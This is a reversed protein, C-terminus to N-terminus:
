KCCRFGIHVQYYQKQYGSGAKYCSAGRGHGWSGGLTFITGNPGPDVWEFVNGIMDQAGWASKCNAFTGSPVAKTNQINCNELVFVDGYSFRRLEGGDPSGDCARIWEEESCLRKGLKACEAQADFWNIYTKPMAGARNPFEFRDICFNDVKVMDDPCVLGPNVTPRPMIPPLESVFPYPSLPRFSPMVLATDGQSDPPSAPSYRWRISVVWFSFIAAALLLVKFFQRM